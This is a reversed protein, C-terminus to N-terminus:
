LSQGSIKKVMFSYKCKFALNYVCFSRLHLNQHCVFPLDVRSEGITDLAQISQNSRVLPAMKYKPKVHSCFHDFIIFYQLLSNNKINKIGSNRFLEFTSDFQGPKIMSLLQPPIWDDSHFVFFIPNFRFSHIFLTFITSDKFSGSLICEVIRYLADFFEFSVINNCRLVKSQLVLCFMPGIHCIAPFRFSM